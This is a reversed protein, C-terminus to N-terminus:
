ITRFQRVNNYVTVHRSGIDYLTAREIIDRIRNRDIFWQIRVSRSLKMINCEVVGCSVIGRMAYRVYM